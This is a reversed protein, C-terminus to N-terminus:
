VLVSFYDVPGTLILKLALAEWYFRLYHPIILCM